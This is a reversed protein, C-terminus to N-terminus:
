PLYNFFFLSFKKKNKSYNKEKENFNASAQFINDIHMSFCKSIRSYIVSTVMYGKKEEHYKM